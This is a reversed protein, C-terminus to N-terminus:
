YGTQEAVLEGDVKIRYTHPRLGSFLLPRTKEIFVHHGLADITWSKTLQFSIHTAPNWPSQITTTVGNIDLSIRGTMSSRKLVAKKGDISFTLQM